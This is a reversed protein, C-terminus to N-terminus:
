NFSSSWNILIQIIGNNSSSISNENIYFAPYLFEDFTRLLSWFESVYFLLLFFILVFKLLVWNVDVVKKPGAEYSDPQEVVEDAVSM